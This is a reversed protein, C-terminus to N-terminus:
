SPTTATICRTRTSSTASRIGTRRARCACTSARRRRLPDQTRGAPRRRRRHRDRAHTSRIGAAALCAPRRDPGTSRSASRSSRATQPRAQRRRRHGAAHRPQAHRYPRGQGLPGLELAQRQAERDSAQGVKIDMGDGGDFTRSSAVGLSFGACSTAGACSRPRIRQCPSRATCSCPSAATLDIM